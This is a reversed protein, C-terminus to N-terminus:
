KKKKTAKNTTLFEKNYRKTMAKKFKQQDLNKTIVPLKNYTDITTTLFFKKLKEKRINYKVIIAKTRREPIKM